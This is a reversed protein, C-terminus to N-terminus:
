HVSLSRLQWISRQYYTESRLESYDDWPYIVWIPGKARVRMPKGNMRIALIVPYTFADAVPIEIDYDNLAVAILETGTIGTQELVDRLLPGEFETTGETWPTNTAIKIQPLSELMKRDFKAVTTSNEAAVNGSVELIVTDTPDPLTQAAQASFPIFLPPIFLPLILTVCFLVLHKFLESLVGAQLRCYLCSASM